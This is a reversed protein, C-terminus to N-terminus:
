PMDGGPIFAPALHTDGDCYIADINFRDIWDPTHENRAHELAEDVAAAAGYVEETMLRWAEYTLERHAPEWM